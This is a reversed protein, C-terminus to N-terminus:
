AFCFAVPEIDITEFAYVHLAPKGPATLNHHFVPWVPLAVLNEGVLM